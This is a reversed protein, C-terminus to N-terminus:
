KSAKTKAQGTPQATPQCKPKITGQSLPGAAQAPLLSLEHGTEHWLGGNRYRSQVIYDSKSISKTM